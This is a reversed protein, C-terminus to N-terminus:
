HTLNYVDEWVLWASRVIEGEFTIDIILGEHTAKINLDEGDASEWTPGFVKPHVGELDDDEIDIYIM